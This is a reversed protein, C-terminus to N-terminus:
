TPLLAPELPGPPDCYAVAVGRHIEPMEIIRVIDAWGAPVTVLDHERVFATAEDLAQACLPRVTADDVVGSDALEDLVERPDRGHTLQALEEELRMLDSEARVLVSDPPTETDVHVRPMSGLGARAVALSRPVAALRGTLSRLRDGLPAFDRALLLYLASGPNALLPDWEYPRLEDLALLRSALASRLIEHDVL